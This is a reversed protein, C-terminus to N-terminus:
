TKRHKPLKKYRGNNYNHSKLHNECTKKAVFCILNYCLNFLVAAFCLDATGGEGTTIQIIVTFYKLTSLQSSGEATHLAIDSISNDFFITGNLHRSDKATNINKNGVVDIYLYAGVTDKTADRVLSGYM